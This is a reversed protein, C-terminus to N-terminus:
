IQEADLIPGGVSRAPQEANCHGRHRGLARLWACGSGKPRQSARNSKAPVQQAAQPRLTQQGAGGHRFHPSFFPIPSHRVSRGMAVHKRGSRRPPRSARGQADRGHPYCTQGKGRNQHGHFALWLGPLRGSGGKAIRGPAVLTSILLKTISQAPDTQDARVGRKAASRGRPLVLRGRSVGGAWRVRPSWWDM